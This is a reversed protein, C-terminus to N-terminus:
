PLDFAAQQRVRDEAATLVGTVIFRGSRDGPQWTAGMDWSEDPQLTVRTLAQTFRMADSWRWVREGSGDEVIFDYRQSSPFTFELPRSGANTLHFGFQVSDQGVEVTVSAALEGGAVLGDGAAAGGNPGACAVLLLSAILLRHIRM